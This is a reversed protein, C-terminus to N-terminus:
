NRALYRSRGLVAKAFASWSRSHHLLRVVVSWGRRDIVEQAAVHAECYEMAGGGAGRVKWWQAPPALETLPIPAFGHLECGGASAVRGAIV